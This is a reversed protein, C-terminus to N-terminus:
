RRTADIFFWGTFETAARTTAVSYQIAAASSRSCRCFVPLRGQTAAIASSERADGYPEALGADLFVSVPHIFLTVFIIIEKTSITPITAKKCEKILELIFADVFSHHTWFL